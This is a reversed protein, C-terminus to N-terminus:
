FRAQHTLTFTRITCCLPLHTFVAGSHSRRSSEACISESWLGTCTSFREKVGGRGLGMCRVLLRAGQSYCSETYSPSEGRVGLVLACAGSCEALLLRGHEGMGSAAAGVEEWAGPELSSVLQGPCPGHSTQSLPPDGERTAWVGRLGAHGHGGWLRGTDVLACEVSGNSCSCPEPSM